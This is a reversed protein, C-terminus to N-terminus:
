IPGYPAALIVFFRRLVSYYARAIAGQDQETLARYYFELYHMVTQKHEGVVSDFLLVYLEQEAANFEQQIAWFKAEDVQTQLRRMHTHVADYYDLLLAAPSTALHREGERDRFSETSWEALLRELRDKPQEATIPDPKTHLEGDPSSM